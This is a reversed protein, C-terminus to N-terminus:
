KETGSPAVLYKGTASLFPVPIPNDWDAPPKTAEVYYKQHHVTMIDPWLPEGEFGSDPVYLADFFLVYGADDTTGFFTKYAASNENWDDGLMKTFAAAVKIASGPIYPVGYTRHLTVSAELVSEQGLGVIMRGEVKAERTKADLLKM